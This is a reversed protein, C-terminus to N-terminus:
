GWLPYSSSANSTSRCGTKILLVCALARLRPSKEYAGASAPLGHATRILPAGGYKASEQRASLLGHRLGPFHLARFGHRLLVNM